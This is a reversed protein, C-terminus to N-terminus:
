PHGGIEGPCKAKAGKSAGRFIATNEAVSMHPHRRSRIQSFGRRRRHPRTSVHMILHNSPLLHIPASRRTCGFAPRRRDQTLAQLEPHPGRGQGPSKPKPRAKSTVDIESDGFGSVSSGGWALPRALKMTCCPCRHWEWRRQSGDSGLKKRSSFTDRQRSLGSLANNHLALKLLDFYEGDLDLNLMRAARFVLACSACTEAPCTDNPLDYERTFSENRASPGYGGTFWM